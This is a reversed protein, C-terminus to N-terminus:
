STLMGWHSPTGRLLLLPKERYGRIGSKSKILAQSQETADKGRLDQGRPSVLGRAMVHM